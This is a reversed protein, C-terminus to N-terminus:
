GPAPLSNKLHSRRNAMYNSQPKNSGRDVKSPMLLIDETHKLNRLDLVKSPARLSYVQYGHEGLYCWLDALSYGLLPYAKPIVECIIPPRIGSAAFSDLVGKLIPMEFGQADIKLLSIEKLSKERIYSDLRIVPVEITEKVQESAKLGPVMTNQGIEMTVLISAMGPMEGLACANPVIKYGPNLCAFRQMRQFYAPVPEFSHVQGTKGVLGAGIASLYGVNAGVDVFINGPRLFKKMTRIIFPAYSGYYMHRTGWFQEIDFEFVIDNIRTRIPLAPLKRLAGIKRTLIRSFFVPDRVVLAATEKIANWASTEQSEPGGILRTLGKM